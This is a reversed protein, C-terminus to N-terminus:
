ELPFGPSIEAEPEKTEAAPEERKFIKVSKISKEDADHVILRCGDAHLVQLRFWLVRLLFRGQKEKPIFWLGL